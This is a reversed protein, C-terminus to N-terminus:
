PDLQTKVQWKFRKFLGDSTPNLINDLNYINAMKVDYLLYLVILRFLIPTSIQSCKNIKRNDNNITNLYNESNFKLIDEIDIKEMSEIKIIM